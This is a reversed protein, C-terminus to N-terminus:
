KQFLKKVSTFVNTLTSEVWRADNKPALLPAYAIALQINKNMNEFLALVASSEKSSMTEEDEEDEEEEDEEEELENRAEEIEEELADIIEEMEEMEEEHYSDYEDTEYIDVLYQDIFEEITFSNKPYTINVPKNFDFLTVDLNIDYTLSPNELDTNEELYLFTEDLLELDNKDLAILVHLIVRYPLGDDGMWIESNKFSIKPILVTVFTKFSEIEEEDFQDVYDKDDLVSLLMEQAQKTNFTLEHRTVEISNGNPIKLLTREGKKFSYVKYKQLNTALNSSFEESGYTGDSLDSEEYYSELEDGDIRLTKGQLSSTTFMSAVEPVSDLTIYVADKGDIAFQLSLNDKVEFENLKQFISFEISSNSKLHDPNSKDSVGQFLAKSNLKTTYTTEEYTDYMKTEFSFDGSGKYSFTEVTAFADVVRKLTLEKYFFEKAFIAGVGIFLVVLLSGAIYTFRKKGSSVPTPSPLGGQMNEITVNSPHVEGSNETQYMHQEPQQPVNETNSNNEPYM